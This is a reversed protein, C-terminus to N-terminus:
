KERDIGCFKWITKRKVHKMYVDRYPSLLIELEEIAEILVQFFNLNRAERYAHAEM